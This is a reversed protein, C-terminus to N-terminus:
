PQSTPENKNAWNAKPSGADPLLDLLSSEGPALKSPALDAVKGIVIRQAAVNEAALTSRWFGANGELAPSNLSFFLTLLCAFIYAM